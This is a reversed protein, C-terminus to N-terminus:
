APVSEVSDTVEIHEIVDDIFKPDFRLKAALTRRYFGCAGRNTIPRAADEDIADRLHRYPEHRPYESVDIRFVGTSDGWAATPWPSGDEHPLSAGGCPEGPAALREGLWRAVGVTVANGTLKWRPGNRRGEDAAETWGHPFGQLM